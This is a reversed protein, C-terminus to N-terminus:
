ARKSDFWFLPLPERINSLIPLHRIPARTVACFPMEAPILYWPLHPAALALSKVLVTDLCFSCYIGNSKSSVQSYHQHEADSHAAPHGSIIYAPVEAKGYFRLAALALPVASLLVVFLVIRSILRRSSISKFAPNFLL